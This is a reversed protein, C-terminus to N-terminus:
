LPVTQVTQVFYLVRVLLYTEFHCMFSEGNSPEPDWRSTIPVPVRAIYLTYVTLGKPSTISAPGPTHASPSPLSLPGM